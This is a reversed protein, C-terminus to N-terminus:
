LSYGKRYDNKVIHAVEPANTAVLNSPPLNLDAGPQGGSGGTVSLWRQFTTQYAQDNVDLSISM